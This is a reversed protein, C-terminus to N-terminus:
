ARELAELLADAFKIATDSLEAKHLPENQTLLSQMMLAAVYERKTLGIEHSFAPKRANWIM